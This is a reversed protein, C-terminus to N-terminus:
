RASCTMNNTLAETVAGHVVSYDVPTYAQSNEWATPGSHGKCDCSHCRPTMQPLHNLPHLVQQVLRVVQTASAAACVCTYDWCWSGIPIPFFPFSSKQFSVKGNILSVCSLVVHYFVFVSVQAQGIVKMHIYHCTYMCVWMYVCMYCVCLVYVHCLYM